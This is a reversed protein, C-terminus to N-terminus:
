LMLDDLENDFEAYEQPIIISLFMSKISSLKHTINIAVKKINSGIIKCTDMTTDKFFKILVYSGFISNTIWVMPPLAYKLPSFISNEVTDYAVYAGGASSLTSLCIAIFPIARNLNPFFVSVFDLNNKGYYKKYAADFILGATQTSSMIDLSFGPLSIIISAPICIYPSDIFLKLGGYALLQRVIENGVPCILSLGQICRRLVRAKKGYSLNDRLALEDIRHPFTALEKIFEATKEKADEPNIEELYLQQYLTPLFSEDIVTSFNNNQMKNKNNFIGLQTIISIFEYYGETKFFYDIVFSPIVLLKISNYKYVSYTDPICSMIGTFNSILHKLFRYKSSPALKIIQEEETTTPDLRGALKLGAWTSAGGYTIVTSFAFVYCMAPYNEVFPLIYAAQCAINFYSFGSITGFTIALAKLTRRAYKITKNEEIIQNGSIYKETFKLINQYFTKYQTNEELSNIQLRSAGGDSLVIDPDSDETLLKNEEERVELLLFNTHIPNRVDLEEMEMDPDSDKILPKNEEEKEELLLSNTHRAHGVDLEEMGIMACPEETKVLVCIFLLILYKLFNM